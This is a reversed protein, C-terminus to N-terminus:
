GRGSLWESGELTFRWPRGTGVRIGIREGSAVRPTGRDAPVLIGIEGGLPRGSHSLGIALSRCLRGPGRCLLGVPTGPNNARMLDVGELPELARILVAEGSGPPGATVNFCCHMGYVFYVYALGGGGFMPANRKTPGRFSHSAPDDATYAETEVIRGSARGRPLTRVLMCGVLLPALEPAGSRYVDRRLMGAEM